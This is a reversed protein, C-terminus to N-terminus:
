TVINIGRIGFITSVLQLILVSAIVIVLGIFAQTLTNRAATTAKEDGGANLYRFGGVILMAFFVLGAIGLVLSFMLRILTDPDTIVGLAGTDISGLSQVKLFSDEM